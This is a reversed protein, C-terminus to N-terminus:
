KLFEKEEFCVERTENEEKGIGGSRPGNNEEELYVERKGINIEM